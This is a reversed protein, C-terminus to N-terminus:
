KILYDVCIEESDTIRNDFINCKVQENVQVCLSHNRLRQACRQTTTRQYVGRVIGMFPMLSPVGKLAIGNGDLDNEALTALAKTTPLALALFIGNLGAVEAEQATVKTPESGLTLLANTAHQFQEATVSANYAQAISEPTDATNDTQAPVNDPVPQTPEDPASMLQECQKAPDLTLGAQLLAVEIESRCEVQEFYQRCLQRTAEAQNLSQSRLNACSSPATIPAPPSKNSREFFSCTGLAAFLFMVIFIGVLNSILSWFARLFFLSLPFFLVFFILQLM